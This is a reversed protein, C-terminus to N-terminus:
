FYKVRSCPIQEGYEEEQPGAISTKASQKEKGDEIEIGSM